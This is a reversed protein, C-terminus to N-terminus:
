FEIVLKIDEIQDIARTILRRNEVYIIEGSYPQLEPYLDKATLAVSDVTLGLATASYATNGTAFDPANSGHSGSTSGTLGSVATVAGSAGTYFPYVKGNTASHLAPDQYYRLIGGATPDADDNPIWETVIAKAQVSLGGTLTLTQTITEDVTFNGVYTNGAGTNFALAYTQRATDYAPADTNDIVAGGAGDFALPDRLLGIRRFDNTVPFDGAGEAFTLRINCMVRKANLQEIFKGFGETGVNGSAGYGGQPPIVVEVDGRNLVNAPVDTNLVALTTLTANKYLGYKQGDPVALAAGPVLKVKAFSYETPTKTTEPTTGGTTLVRAKTIVGNTITLKAIKMETDSIQGDGNIPAYLEGSGGGLYGTGGRLITVVEPGVVSVGAFPAVPIFKQSQFRLVEEISLTYLYKWKYGNTTTYVGNLSCYGVAEPLQTPSSTSPGNFLDPTAGDGNAQRNNDICMWVSYDPCRVIMELNSTSATGQWLGSEQSLRKFNNTNAYNHRWMDYPEVRDTFGIDANKGYDLRNVVPRVFSGDPSTGVGEGLKDNYIRKAAIIERYYNYKEELNDLPRLPEDETAPRIKLIKADGNGGAGDWSFNLGFKLTTLAAPDLGTVLIAGDLVATVTAHTTTPYGSLTEISIPDGVTVENAGNNSDYQYYEILTQWNASKGVFFFHNTSATEDFSELFQKANYVRFKDTILATDAM